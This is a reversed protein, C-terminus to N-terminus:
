GGEDTVDLARARRFVTPSVGEWRRFARIFHSADTYGLRAAVEATGGEPGRLLALARRHRWQDAIEEFATDCGALRRQLTRPSIGLTRAADRLTLRGMLAAVEFMRLLSELLQADSLEFGAPLAALGAPDLDAGEDRCLRNRRELLPADFRIVLDGGPVFSVACGMAAEYRSLRALPRHPLIVELRADPDGSMARVSRVFFAAIGENLFRAEGPDSGHMRHTWQARSASTAVSISTGGQLWPLHRQQLELSERMTRGVRLAQGFLGLRDPSSADAMNLGISAEGSRRALGQMVAHIQSRRVVKDRDHFADAAIGGMAMVERASVGAAEAVAPLSHILSLRVGNRDHM